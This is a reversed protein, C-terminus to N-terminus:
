THGEADECERWCCYMWGGGTLFIFAFYCLLFLELVLSPLPTQTPPDQPPAVFFVKRELSNKQVHHIYQQQSKGTSLHQHESGAPVESMGFVLLQIPLDRFYGCSLPAHCPASKRKIGTPRCRSSTVGGESEGQTRETRGGIKKKEAEKYGFNLRLM